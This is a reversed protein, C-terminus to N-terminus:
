VYKLKRILLAIGYGGFVSLPRDFINILIRAIIEAALLPVDNILLGLKFYNEPSVAYEPSPVLLPILAAILGGMISMQLCMVVSLVLLITFSIFGTDADTRAAQKTFFGLGYSRCFAATLAVGAISCLAYLSYLPMYPPLLFTGLMSSLIATIIGFVPGALFTITLTFVTDLFLPMTLIRNVLINLLFNGGAFLVCLVLLKLWNRFPGAM